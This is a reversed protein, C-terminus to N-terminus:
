KVLSVCVGTGTYEPFCLTYNRGVAVRCGGVTYGRNAVYEAQMEITVTVTNLTDPYTIRTVVNSGVAADEDYLEGFTEYPRVDVASVTGLVAGTESDTVADGVHLASLTDSGVGALEVACSVTRIEAKDKKSFSFPTLVSVVFIVAGVIALILLIDVLLFLWRHKSNKKQEAYRLPNGAIGKERKPYDTNQNM